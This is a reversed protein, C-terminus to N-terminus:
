IRRIRFEDILLELHVRVVQGPPGQEADDGYDILIGDKAVRVPTGNVLVHTYKVMQQDEPNTGDPLVEVVEVSTHTNQNAKPRSETERNKPPINFARQHDSGQTSLQSLSKNGKSWTCADCNAIFMGEPEVDYRITHQNTMPAEQNTTNFFREHDSAMTGLVSVSKHTVHWGCATCKARFFTDGSLQGTATSVEVCHEPSTTMTPEQQSHKEADQHHNTIAIKAARYTTQTASWGCGCEARYEGGPLKRIEVLPGNIVKTRDPQHSLHPGTTKGTRGPIAWSGHGTAPDILTKGAPLPGGTDRRPQQDPTM